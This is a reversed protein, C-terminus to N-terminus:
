KTLAEYIKRQLIALQKVEHNVCVGTEDSYKYLRYVINDIKNCYYNASKKM